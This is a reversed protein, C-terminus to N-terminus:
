ETNVSLSAFDWAKLQSAYGQAENLETITNDILEVYQTSKEQFVPMYNDKVWDQSNLINRMNEFYSNLTLSKFDAVKTETTNLQQSLETCRNRWENFNSQEALILITQREKYPSNSWISSAFHLCKETEEILINVDNVNPLEETLPQFAVVQNNVWFDGGRDPVQLGPMGPIWGISGLKGWNFYYIETVISSAKDVHLKMESYLENFRDEEVLRLEKSNFQDEPVTVTATCALLLGILFSSILLCLFNFVKMARV